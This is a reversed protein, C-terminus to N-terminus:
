YKIDKELVVENGVNDVAVIKMKHIGRSIRERKLNCVLRRTKSSYEFLVFRGDIFGKFSKLGSEKDSLELIIKGDLAWKQPRVTKIEPAITDVAVTYKDLVYIKTTIKKKDSKGGVSSLKKGSMRAVYCKDSLPLLHEPIDLSLTAANWLPVIKESLAYVPSYATDSKISVEADEFLSNRPIELLAGKGYVMNDLYWRLKNDERLPEVCCEEGKVVFSCNSGNGYYDRLRYEIKYLREEDFVVWGDDANASLMRLPNNPLIFSRLFWGKGAMLRDYDVWANILRNESYSFNDIRSSFRLSDDVFLEIEYIGYKNHTGNMYDTGKIGFGVRGWVSLTDQLTGAVVKRSVSGSNGCVAGSGEAAYISVAQAVPPRTDVIRKRYFLLPNYLVEGDPSRVEFHLHPGFSYGTNGAYAITSGRKVIFENPAFSIDVAFTEDKYQLERVRKEVDPLFRHLHGYVTMFGNNHMVYIANGYGGPAVRVRAIYGDAPAIIPKGSVGQTKFDLGAHFHNSRLEGFNGSLYLDFAFPSAFSLTDVQGFVATVFFLSQVLILLFYRGMKIIAMAFICFNCLMVLFSQICFVYLSLLLAFLVMFGNFYVYMNKCNGDDQLIKATGFFFM